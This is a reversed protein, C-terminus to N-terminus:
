KYKTFLVRRAPRLQSKLIKMSSLPKFKPYNNFCDLDKKIRVTMIHATAFM